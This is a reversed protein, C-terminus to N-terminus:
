GDSRTEILSWNPDRSRTNRTFLWYEDTRTPENPNGAITKGDKDTTTSDLRAVIRVGIEATRGNMRASEISLSDIAVLRMTLVQGEKLRQRIAEVYRDYLEDGLLPRL